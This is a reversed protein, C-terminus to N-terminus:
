RGYNAIDDIKSEIRQLEEQRIELLNDAVDIEIGVYKWINVSASKFWNPVTISVRYDLTHKPFILLNIQNLWLKRKTITQSNLGLANSISFSAQNLYGAWNWTDKAESSVVQVALIRQNIDTEVKITPIPAYQSSTVQIANVNKSFVKVWNTPKDLELKM